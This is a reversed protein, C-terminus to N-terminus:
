ARGVRRMISMWKEQGESVPYDLNPRPMPLAGAVIAGATVRRKGAHEHALLLALSFASFTDGHGSADRPSTLRIGYSKEEVRLRLLDRRLPECPHMQLRRDAFSELVLTAQERLNAATPPVERMWPQAWHRRQQNRRRHASEAELRQALHEAQWPDFAVAELAYRADLQLIYKEVEPLSVKGGPPPRWLKHHALRVRGAVGGAPVALVVVASCDRTM